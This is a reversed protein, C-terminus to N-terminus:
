CPWSKQDARLTSTFKLPLKLSAPQRSLIELLHHSFYRRFETPKFKSTCSDTGGQSVELPTEFCSATSFRRELPM